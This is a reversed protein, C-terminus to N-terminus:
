RDPPPVVVTTPAGKKTKVDYGGGFRPTVETTTRGNRDVQYGGGFKPRVTTTGKGETEVTYGGGFNPKVSTTGGQAGDQVIVPAPVRERQKRKGEIDVIVGPQPRGAKGNEIPVGVVVDTTQAALPSAGMWSVALMLTIRLSLRRASCM